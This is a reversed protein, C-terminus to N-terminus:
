SQKVLGRHTVVKGDPDVLRYRGKGSQAYLLLADEGARRSSFGECRLWKGDWFEVHWLRPETKRYIYNM